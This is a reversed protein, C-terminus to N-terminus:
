AYSWRYGRHHRRKNRCCASILRPDFRSDSSLGPLTVIDGSIIHVGVVPKMRSTMNRNTKKNRLVKPANTLVLGIRANSIRNRIAASMDQRSHLKNYGSPELTGLKEIYYSEVMDLNNLDMITEIIEIKFSSQGYLAIDNGISESHESRSKCHSRWRDRVSVTTQGVYQKGNIKNTILYVYAPIGIFEPVESVLNDITYLLKSM